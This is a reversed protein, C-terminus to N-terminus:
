ENELTRHFKEQLHRAVKDISEIREKVHVVLDALLKSKQAFVLGEEALFRMHHIDKLHDVHVNKFEM